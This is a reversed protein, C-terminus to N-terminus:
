RVFAVITVIHGATLGTVEIFGDSNYVTPAAQLVGGSTRVTVEPAAQLMTDYPLHMAVSTKGAPVTIDIVSLQAGKTEAVAATVVSPATGSGGANTFSSVASAVPTIDTDLSFFLTPLSNLTKVGLYTLGVAALAAANTAFSAIMNTQFTAIDTILTVLKSGTVSRTANTDAEFKVGCLNLHDGDAWRAFAGLRVGIVPLPSKSHFVQSTAPGELVKISGADALAMVATIISPEDAITVIEGVALHMARRGFSFLKAVGTINQIKM